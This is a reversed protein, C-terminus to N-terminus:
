STMEPIEDWTRGDLMRGATKKGVRVGEPSFEGWQKFLFSSGAAVAQDRLSRPLTPDLPGAKPGSKGGGIIWSPAAHGFPQSIDIEEVQPEVSVFHHRARIKMLHPVRIDWWKQTVATTGPWVNSPWGDLRWHEPVLSNALQIRKTLMLWILWPTQEIIPFLRALYPRQDARGEAWDGMSMCFVRAQAGARQAARNWRYPENWHKDSFFRREVDQGWIPFIPTKGWWYPNEARKRAYCGNCAPDISDEHDPDGIEECGWWPNFTFDTWEIPSLAM